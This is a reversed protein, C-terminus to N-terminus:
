VKTERGHHERRFVLKKLGQENDEANQKQVILM